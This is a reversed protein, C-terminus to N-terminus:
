GCFCFPLAPVGEFNGAVNSCRDFDKKEERWKKPKRRRGGRARLALLLPEFGVVRQCKLTFRKKCVVGCMNTTNHACTCSSTAICSASPTHTPRCATAAQTSTGSRGRKDGHHTEIKPREREVIRASHLPPQFARPRCSHYCAPAAERRLGHAETPGFPAECAPPRIRASHAGVPDAM